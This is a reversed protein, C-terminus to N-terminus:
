HADTVGNTKWRCQVTRLDRQCVVAQLGCYVERRQQRRAELHQGDGERSLQRLDAAAAAAIDNPQRQSLETAPTAAAEWAAAAEAAAGAPPAPPWCGAQRGVYQGEGRVPASCTAVRPCSATQVPPVVSKLHLGEARAASCVPKVQGGGARAKGVSAKGAHGREVGTGSRTGRGRSSTIQRCTRSGRLRDRRSSRAGNGRRDM